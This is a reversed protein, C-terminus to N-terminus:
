EQRSHHAPMSHGFIHECVDDKNRLDFAPPRRWPTKPCRANDTGSEREPAQLPSEAFRVRRVKTVRDGEDQREQPSEAPSQDPTPLSAEIHALNESQIRLLLLSSRPRNANM